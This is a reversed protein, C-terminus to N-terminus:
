NRKAIEEKFPGPMTPWQRTHFPDEAKQVNADCQNHHLSNGIGDL